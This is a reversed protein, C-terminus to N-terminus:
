LYITKICNNYNQKTKNINNQLNTCNYCNFFEILNKNGDSFIIKRFKNSINNLINKRINEIINNLQDYNFDEEFEYIDFEKCKDLNQVYELNNYKNSFNEFGNNIFYISMCEIIKNNYKVVLFNKINLNDIVLTIDRNQELYCIKCINIKSTTYQSLEDLIIEM